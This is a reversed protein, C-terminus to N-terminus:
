KNSECRVAARTCYLGTWYVANTNYYLVNQRRRTSKWSTVVSRGRCQVTSCGVLVGFLFMTGDGRVEEDEEM